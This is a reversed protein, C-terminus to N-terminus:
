ENKGVDDQESEDSGNGADSEPPSVQINENTEDLQGQESDEQAPEVEETRSSEVPDTGTSGPSDQVPEETMPNKESAEGGQLEVPNGDEANPTSPDADTESSQLSELEAVGLDPQEAEKNRIAETVVTRLREFRDEIQANIAGMSTDVVCGGREINPDEEIKLTAGEDLAATWGTREREVTELDDPHVRISVASKDQLNEFCDRVAELVTATELVALEGVINRALALSLEALELESGKFLEDWHTRVQEVIGRFRDIESVSQAQGERLGETKGDEFGSRYASEKEQQFREEFEKLREEVM